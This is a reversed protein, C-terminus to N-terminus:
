HRIAGTNAMNHTKKPDTAQTKDINAIFIVAINRKGSFAATYTL